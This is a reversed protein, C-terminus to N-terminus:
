MHWPKGDEVQGERWGRQALLIAVRKLCEVDNFKPFGKTEAGM